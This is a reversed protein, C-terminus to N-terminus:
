PLERYEKDNGKFLDDTHERVRSSRYLSELIATKCYDGDEPEHDADEAKELAPEENVRSYRAHCLWVAPAWGGLFPTVRPM